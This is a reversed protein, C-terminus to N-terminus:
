EKSRSVYEGSRTDVKLVEGEGIFLPVQIVAGTELTAPKSGGSSTNGRVGPDTQAVELHVFNPPEVTIPVNNFLTVDVVDQEKIWKAAEGMAAERAEYQEYTEPNMFHWSTGDHYLFQMSAVHVDAGELKDGSKLTKELVRGNMLNKVKIRTFAQGKGPKIYDTEVVNVPDGDMMLKLGTKMENMGYSAM